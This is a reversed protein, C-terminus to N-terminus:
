RVGRYFKNIRNAEGVLERLAEVGSRRDDLAARLEAHATSVRSMATALGDLAAEIEKVEDIEEAVRTDFVVRAALQGTPRAENAHALLRDLMIGVSRKIRANSATTLEALRGLDPGAADMVVRLAELRKRRVVERGLADVAAALVGASKQTAAPDPAQLVAFSKLSAALEEAAQDVASEFDDKALAQLAFAYKVVVDLAVERFRLEPGLDFSLGDVVPVFSDRTLRGPEVTVVAFRRQLKEIRDYTATTGDLIQQGSRALTEFKGVPISTCASLVILLIV